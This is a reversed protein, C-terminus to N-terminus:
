KAQSQKIQMEVSGFGSKMKGIASDAAAFKNQMTEYRSDLREVATEKEKETRKLQDELTREFNTISGDASNVLDDLTEYLKYFLGDEMLDKGNKTDKKGQFAEQIMAPDETVQTEFKFSDFEMQGEQNFSIGMNALSMGDQNVSRIISALSSRVSNISNEGLFIGVEEKEDDYKTLSDVGKMVANYNTVFEQMTNVIQNTDQGVKINVRKNEATIEELDFELGVVMDDIKNTERTIKAGNFNFHSNEPQQLENYLNNLLKTEPVEVNEIVTMDEYELPLLEGTLSDKEQTKPVSIIKTEQITEKEEGQVLEIKTSQGMKVAKLVMRFESEGTQVISANVDAKATQNIEGVLDTLTMGAKIEFEHTNGDIKIKLKSDESALSAGKSKFPDSQIIHELALKEVQLTINQPDVGDQVIASVGEGIVSATRQLYLMEDKIDASNDKLAGILKSFMGLSKIKQEYETVKRELPKIINAEDASRLKNITDMNLGANSGIGLSNIGAM